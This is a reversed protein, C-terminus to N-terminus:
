SSHYPYGRGKEGTKKMSKLSVSVFSVVGEEGFMGIAATVHDEAVVM